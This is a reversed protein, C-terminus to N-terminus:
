RRQVDCMGTCADKEARVEAERTERRDLEEKDRRLQEFAKVKKAERKRAQAAKKEAQEEEM